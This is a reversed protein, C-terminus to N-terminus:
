ALANLNKKSCTGYSVRSVKIDTPITIPNPYPLEIELGKRCIDRYLAAKEVPYQLVASDHVQLLLEIDENNGLVNVIGYNILDGITSQPEFALAKNLLMPDNSNVFWGRRSFITDIYGKTRITNHTHEHWKKV